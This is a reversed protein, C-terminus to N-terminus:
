QVSGQTKHIAAAQEALDLHAAIADTVKQSGAEPTFSYWQSDQRRYTNHDLTEIGEFIVGGGFIERARVTWSHTTADAETSVIVDGQYGNLVEIVKPAIM